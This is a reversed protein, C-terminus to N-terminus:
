RPIIGSAYENITYISTIEERPNIQRIVELMKYDGRQPQGIRLQNTLQNGHKDFHISRCNPNDDDQNYFSAWTKRIWGDDDALLHDPDYVHTVGLRRASLLTTTAFLGDGHIASKGTTCWTPLATYTPALDPKIAPANM